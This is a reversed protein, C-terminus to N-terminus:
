HDDRSQGKEEPGQRAGGFAVRPNIQLSRGCSPHGACGSGRWSGAPPAPPRRRSASRAHSAAPAAPLSVLTRTPSCRPCGQSCQTHDCENTAANTTNAARPDRYLLRWPLSRVSAEHPELSLSPYSFSSPPADYRPRHPDRRVGVRVCRSREREDHTETQETLRIQKCYAISCLM